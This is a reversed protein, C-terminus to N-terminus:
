SDGEKMDADIVAPLVWREIVEQLLREVKEVFAQLQEPTVDPGGDGALWSIVRQIIGDLRRELGAFINAAASRSEEDSLIDEIAADVNELGFIVEAANPFAEFIETLQRELEALEEDSLYPQDEDDLRKRIGLAVSTLTMGLDQLSSLLPVWQSFWESLEDRQQVKGWVVAALQSLNASVTAEDADFIEQEDDM